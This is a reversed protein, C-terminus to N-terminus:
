NMVPHLFAISLRCTPYLRIMDRKVFRHDVDIIPTRPQVCGDICFHVFEVVDPEKWRSVFANGRGEEGFESISGSPVTTLM